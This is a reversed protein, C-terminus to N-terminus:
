VQVKAPWETVQNNNEHGIKQIVRQIFQGIIRSSHGAQVTIIPVLHSLTLGFPTQTNRYIRISMYFRSM